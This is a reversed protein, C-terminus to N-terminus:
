WIHPRDNVLVDNNLAYIYIIVRNYSTQLLKLTISSIHACDAVSPILNM